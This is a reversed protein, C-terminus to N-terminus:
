RVLLAGNRMHQGGCGSVYVFTSISVSISAGMDVSVSRSVFIRYQLLVIEIYHCFWWQGKSRLYLHSTQWMNFAHIGLFIKIVASLFSAPVMFHQLHEIMKNFFMTLAVFSNCDTVKHTERKISIKKNFIYIDTCWQFFQFWCVTLLWWRLCQILTQWISHLGHWLLLQRWMPRAEFWVLLIACRCCM